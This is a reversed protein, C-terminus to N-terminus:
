KPPKRTTTQAPGTPIHAKAYKGLIEFKGNLKGFTFVKPFLYSALGYDGQSKTYAPTTGAWGTTIPM